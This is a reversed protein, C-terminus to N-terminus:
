KLPNASANELEGVESRLCHATKEDNQQQWRDTNLGHADVVVLSALLMLM